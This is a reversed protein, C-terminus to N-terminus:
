RRRCSPPGVACLSVLWWQRDGVLFRPSMEALHAMRRARLDPALARRPRLAPRARPSCAHRRPACGITSESYAKFHNGVFRLMLKDKGVSAEGLLLLKVERVNGGMGGPTAAMERGSLPKFRRTKLLSTPRRRSRVGGVQRRVPLACFPCARPCLAAMADARLDM